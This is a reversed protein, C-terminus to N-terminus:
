IIVSAELLAISCDECFLGECAMLSISNREFYNHCKDCEFVQEVVEEPFIYYNKLNRYGFIDESKEYIKTYGIFRFKAGNPLNKFYIFSM